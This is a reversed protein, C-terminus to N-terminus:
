SPELWGDPTKVLVTHWNAPDDMAVELYVAYRALEWCQLMRDAARRDAKEYDSWVFSPRYTRRLCNVWAAEDEITLRAAKLHPKM